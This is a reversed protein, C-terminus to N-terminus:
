YITSADIGTDALRDATVQIKVALDQQAADTLKSSDTRVYGRYLEVLQQQEGTDFGGGGFHPLGEAEMGNAEFTRQAGDPYRVPRPATPTRRQVELELTARTLKKDKKALKRTLKKVDGELALAKAEAALARKQWDDNMTEEQGRTLTPQASYYLNGSSLAAKVKAIKGVAKRLKKMKMRQLEPNTENAIEIAREVIAEVAREVDEDDSLDLDEIDVSAGKKAPKAREVIVPYTQGYLGKTDVGEFDKLRAISTFVADEDWPRDVLSIEPMKGEKVTDGRMVTPIVGISFGKYTGDDVKKWEADDTIKATVRGIKKGDVKDMTVQLAQGAAIPQHMARIAGTGLKMYDGLMREVTEAPLNYGDGVKANAYFIGEVERKAADKRVIQAFLHGPKIHKVNAMDLSRMLRRAAM